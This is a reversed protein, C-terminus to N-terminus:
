AAAEAELKRRLIFDKLPFPRVEGCHLRGRMTLAHLGITYLWPEIMARLARTMHAWGKPRTKRARPMHEPTQSIRDGDYAYTCISITQLIKECDVM